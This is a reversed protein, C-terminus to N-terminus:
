TGVEFEVILGGAIALVPESVAIEYVRNRARGLRRWVARARYEGIAGISVWRENSWTKGGDDSWRLMAQPAAENNLGVGTEFEVEVKQHFGMAGDFTIPASVASRRLYGSPDTYHDLSLSYLGGSQGGVIVKGNALVSHRVDWGAQEYGAREHWVQTAIDYVYTGQGAITLGYFTHGEQAYAFATIEGTAAEIKREIWHESIRILQQGEARYVIRDDGVWFLGNDAQALTGGGLCGRELVGSSQRVFPFTADGANVWIETTKRGIIWLERHDAILRVGDDPYSEASAFDLANYATFDEIGTLYFTGSDQELGIGYGDLSTFSATLPLASVIGHFVGTSYNHVHVYPPACVAIQTTNVGFEVRASGPIAGLSTATGNSAVSYLTEGAVVYLVGRLELLGRIAGTLSGFAIRAPCGLLTVVSRANEPLREPYVNILRSRMFQPGRSVFSQVAFPVKRAPM